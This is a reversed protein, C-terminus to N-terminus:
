RLAFGAPAAPVSHMWAALGTARRAGALSDRRIGPTYSSTAVVGQCSAPLMTSTCALTEIESDCQDIASQPSRAAGSCDVSGCCADHIQSECGAAPPADQIIGTCEAPAMGAVLPGCPAIAVADTCTRVVSEQSLVNDACNGMAGCCVTLAQGMCTAEPMTDGCAAARQCLSQAIENCQGQVTQLEGGSGTTLCGPIMRRCYAAGISDCQDGITPGPEGGPHGGCASAGSLTAALWFAARAVRTALGSTTCGLVRPSAHAGM